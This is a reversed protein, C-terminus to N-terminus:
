PASDLFNSIAVNVEDARTLPAMHGGGSIEKVQWHPFVASLVDIIDHLVLRTDASRMLLTRASISKFSDATTPVVAADWEYYNPQLLAAVSKRRELPTADWTGDGNFYETFREALASWQGSKGLRKVDSYLALAEAWARAKGHELLVYPVMPEFLALHSVRSGLRRAAALAVGGGWSHGVIRIPGDLKECVALLIEAAADITLTRDVTWATTEGYGNLNPALIRYRGRLQEILRKWQKNGAVSSHSLVVPPGTGEDIFDVHLDGRDIIAM